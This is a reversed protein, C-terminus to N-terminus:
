GEAPPDDDAHAKRLAVMARAVVALHDDADGAPAPDAEVLRLAGAPDCDTLHYVLAALRRNQTVERPQPAGPQDPSPQDPSSNTDMLHEEDLGAACIGHQESSITLTDTM